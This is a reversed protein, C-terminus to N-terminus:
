YNLEDHNTVFNFNTLFLLNRIIYFKTLTLENGREIAPLQYNSFEIELIM